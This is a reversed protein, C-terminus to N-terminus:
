ILMKRLFPEQDRAHKWGYVVFIDKGEEWFRKIESVIYQDRFAESAGSVASKSPDTADAICLVCGARDFGHGQRSDHIREFNELSFDFGELVPNDKLNQLSRSSSIYEELPPKGHPLRLWQAFLRAFFYYAIEEVSFRRTLEEIERTISPEPSCGEIGEKGALYTLYGAEGDRRIAESKSKSLPRRGGEVLAIRGRGRTGKLFGAWYKDLLSYQCDRPDFSHRVGLYYLCQDQNAIKFFYLRDSNM